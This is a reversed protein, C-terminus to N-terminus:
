KDHTVHTLTDNTTFIFNRCEASRLTVSVNFYFRLARVCARACVCVCMYM